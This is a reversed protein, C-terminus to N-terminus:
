AINCLIYASCLNHAIHCPHPLISPPSTPEQFHQGV